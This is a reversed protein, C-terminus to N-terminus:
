TALAEAFQARAAKQKARAERMKAMHEPSSGRGKGKRAPAPAAASLKAELAALRDEVAKRAAREKELESAGAMRALYKRAKEVLADLGLVGSANVTEETMGALQQVTNVANKTLLDKSAQDIWAMDNVLIADPDDRGNQFAEWQRPFRSVYDPTALSDIVKRDDGPTKIEIHDREDVQNRYFRVALARDGEDEELWQGNTLDGRPIPLSEFGAPHM